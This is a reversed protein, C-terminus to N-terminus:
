LRFHFIAICSAPTRMGFSYTIVAAAVLAHASSSIDRSISTCKPTPRLIMESAVCTPVPIVVWPALTRRSLSVPTSVRSTIIRRLTPVTAAQAFVLSLGLAAILWPIASYLVRSTSPALRRIQSM